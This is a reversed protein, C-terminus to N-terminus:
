TQFEPAYETETKDFTWAVAQRARKITPPVRLFYDKFSGDAEPTSNVVKVMVLPEDGPIEKRYLVGFDDRHIEVAGSDLLFRAEGYREMKVRRIEQNSEQEIDAVTITSPEMVVYRPVRVGHIAFVGWDDAFRVAHGDVCHLRNQDDRNIAEPRACFVVIDPFTFAAACNEAVEILGEFRNFDCVTKFVEYFSLWFSDSLQGPLWWWGFRDAFEQLQDSVQAIVQDSVQDSVQARVQARVQASVQARVQASVQDRVQAVVQARVQARVQDRVQASVQDSVQASVQDRVQAIVTCAIVARYPSDMWVWYKPASRGVSVYAKTIGSLARERPQDENGTRLGIKLWKERIVPLSAEMEPTLKTIM